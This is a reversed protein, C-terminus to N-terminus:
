EGTKLPLAHRSYSKDVDIKLYNDENLEHILSSSNLNQLIKNWSVPNSFLIFKYMHIGNQKKSM